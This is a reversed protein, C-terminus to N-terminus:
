EVTYRIGAYTMRGFIPGWVLSSDFYPGFPDDASLVPNSQVINFLNEVGVYVALKDWWTKSIQVNAVVFDPSRDSLQFPEPNEQTSPIRKQGQWNLTFDFVWDDRNTLYGVHIFARHRSVFPRERRGHAYDTQVDNFRYAFRIDINKAVAYDIQAQLSTSFSEGTLNYFRVQRPTADYDVVIQQDFRTHFGDLTVILERNDLVITQRLSLGTNWAVEQNLGYPMKDNEGEISIHRSSALMGLNEAIISATRRGSGLSFRAVSHTSFAYRLHIRSTTFFGYNNHHDGRIGMVATFKDSPQYTYEGFIGPVVEDRLFYSESLREEINDMQLSWGTKLNHVGIKTSYIANVYFTSQNADYRSGGFTAEQEHRIGAVQFGLSTNPKNAFVKGVKAWGEYRNTWISAGWRPTNDTNKDFYLQGSVKDFRSIKAGVQGTWGKVGQYKWRNLFTWESGTPMDLFGDDNKDNQRDMHKGHIMLGTSMKDNLQIRTNANVEVRGGANGYLNLYFREGEEPKKLEVNIQGTIGEFGNVVSGTGKALQISEVWPGPIYVLGYIASLGRVDPMNERTIQLNPGKLGVLELHMACTVADTFSVDVAPNTEFSEALTCCAAKLLENSSINQVLIPEVFSVEISKKRYTVEVGDLTIGQELILDLSTEKNIELTDSYYGVYSAVLQNAGAPRELTFAGLKDTIAIEKANLWYLQAGELPNLVGDVEVLIHGQIQIPVAGAPKSHREVVEQNRYRCCADLAAYAENSAQGLETDHGISLMADHLVHEDLSTDPSFVVLERKVVNWEAAEIGDIALAAAEIRQQCHGCVGDVFFRLKKGRPNHAAALFPDRYKCCGHLNDYAETPARMLETDHGVAIIHEHLEDISFKREKVTFTLMRTDVSWQADLVGLVSGAAGEIRDKCMDCLGKVLISDTLIQARLSTVSLSAGIILVSFVYKIM